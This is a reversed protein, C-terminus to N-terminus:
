SIVFVRRAAGTTYTVEIEHTGNDDNIRLTNYGSPTSNDTDGSIRFGIHTDGADNIASFDTLSIYVLTGANHFSTLDQSGIPTSGFDNYDESVLPINLNANNTNDFADLDYGDADNSGSSTCGIGVRAASITPSTPLASTDFVIGARRIYYNSALFGAVCVNDNGTTSWTFVTGTTADRAGAWTGVADQALYKTNTSDFNYSTVTDFRVPFAANQMKDLPIEKAQWLQNNRKVWMVRLPVRRDFADRAYAPQIFSSHVGDSVEFEGLSELYSNKNWEQGQKLVALGSGGYKFLAILRHQPTPPTPFTNPRNPIVVEKTFGTRGIVVEFDVGNGFANEYYISRGNVVGQVSQQNRFIQLDDTQHNYWALAFPEYTITHNAGEYRNTYEMLLPAAFNKAVRLHYNHKIMQWYTGEDTFSLDSEVFVGNEKYHVDAWFSRLTNTGNENDITKSRYTRKDTIEAM